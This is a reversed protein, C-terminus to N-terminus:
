ELILLGKREEIRITRGSAAVDEADLDGGVLTEEVFVSEAPRLGRLPDDGIGLAAVEM